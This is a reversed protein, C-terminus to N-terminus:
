GPREDYEGKLNTYPQLTACAVRKTLCQVLFWGQAQNRIEGHPAPARSGDIDDAM